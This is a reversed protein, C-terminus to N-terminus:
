KRKILSDMLFPIADIIDTAIMGHQGKLSAVVDGAMGHIFVACVSAKFPDIGEGILSSIMGTLVDGMGATAMGPNGTINIYHDGSPDAIVTNAGKLVVIVNLDKATKVAINVKDSQVRDVTMNLLRAMEGPHPTIVTPHKRKRLINNNGAISNLGDADIVYPIPLDAKILGSVLLKQKSGLGPGIAIVDLRMKKIKQVTLDAFTIVEATATNVTNQIAKPVSLYVLGSGARLAARSALIAAGAMGVSGAIILVRGNDGKNADFKRVPLYNRIFNIDTINPINLNANQAQKPNPTQSKPSKYPIGIDAIVLKGMKLLAPYKLMGIKPLHLTVTIDAEICSGKIEGTDSDIGSPIDISVVPCKTKNISSIVQAYTGEVVSQLGTGLIGDIILDADNLLKELVDAGSTEFIPIGSRDAIDLNIKLSNSVASREGLLLISVNAGSNKLHRAAVAADGGNNGKGCVVCVNDPIGFSEKIAEVVKLGANEMLVIEPIGIQEIAWKDLRKMESSSIPEM